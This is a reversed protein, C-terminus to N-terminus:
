TVATTQTAESLQGVLITLVNRSRLQWHGYCGTRITVPATVTASLHLSVMCHFEIVDTLLCPELVSYQLLRTLWSCLVPPLSVISKLIGRVSVKLANKLNKGLCCQLKQDPVRTHSKGKYFKIKLSVCVLHEPLRPPRSAM